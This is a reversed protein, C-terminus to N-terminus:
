PSVEALEEESIMEFDDFNDNDSEPSMRRRRIVSSSEEEECPKVTPVEVPSTVESFFSAYM